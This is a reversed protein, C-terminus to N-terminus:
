ASLSGWFCHSGCSVEQPKNEHNKESVPFAVLIQEIPMSYLDSLGFLNDTSPLSDGWEWKYIAQPGEFGFYLQLDKITYGHALRLDKLHLGTSVADISRFKKKIM